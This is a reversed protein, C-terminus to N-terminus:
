AAAAPPARLAPTFRAPSDPLRPTGSAPIAHWSRSPPELAIEIPVDLPAIADLNSVRKPVSECSNTWRFRSHEQAPTRQLLNDHARAISPVLSLTALIAGAVLRVGLRRVTRAPYVIPTV